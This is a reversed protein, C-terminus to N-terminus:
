KKQNIIIKLIKYIDENTTNVLEIVYKHMENQREVEKDFKRDNVNIIIWLGIIIGLLLLNSM